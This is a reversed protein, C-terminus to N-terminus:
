DFERIFKLTFENKGIHWKKEENDFFYLRVKTLLILNTCKFIGNAVYLIIISSM